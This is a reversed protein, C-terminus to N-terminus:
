ISNPEPNLIQILTFLADTKAAHLWSIEDAIYKM